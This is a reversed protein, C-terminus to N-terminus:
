KNLSPYYIHTRLLLIYIHAHMFKIIISYYYALLNNETSSDISENLFVM